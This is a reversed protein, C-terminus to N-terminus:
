TFNRRRACSQAVTPTATTVRFPPPAIASVFMPGVGSRARAASAASASPAAAAPSAAASPVEGTSSTAALASNRLCRARTSVCARPRAPAPPSLM